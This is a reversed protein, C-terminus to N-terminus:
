KGRHEKFTEAVSRGRKLDQFCKADVERGKECLEIVRDADEPRVVVVGDIDAVVLDNPRVTVPPFDDDQATQLTSPHSFITIPV